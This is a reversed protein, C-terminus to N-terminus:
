FLRSYQQNLREQLGKLVASQPHHQAAAQQFQNNALIQSIGKMAGGALMGAGVGKMTRKFRSKQDNTQTYGTYKPDQQGTGAYAGLGGLAGGVGVSKLYGTMLAREQPTILANVEKFSIGLKTFAAHQGCHYFYTPM